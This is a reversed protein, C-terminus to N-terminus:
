CGALPDGADGLFRPIAWDRPSQIEQEVGIVKGMRVLDAEGDFGQQDPGESVANAMVSKVTNPPSAVATM